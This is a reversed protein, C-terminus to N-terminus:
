DAPLRRQQPKRAIPYRRIEVLRNRYVTGQSVGVAYLREVRCGIQEPTFRGYIASLSTFYHEEEGQESSLFSVRYIFEERPM